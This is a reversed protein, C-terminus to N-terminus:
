LKNMNDLHFYGDDEITLRAFKCKRSAELFETVEWFWLKREKFSAIKGLGGQREIYKLNKQELSKWRKDEEVFDEKELKALDLNWDPKILINSSFDYTLAYFKRELPRQTNVRWILTVAKNNKSWYMEDFHYDLEKIFDYIYYPKGGNQHPSQVYLSTRGGRYISFSL